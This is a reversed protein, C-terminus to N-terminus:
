DIPLEAAKIAKELDAVRQHLGFFDILDSLGARIEPVVALKVVERAASSFDAKDCFEDWDLSSMAVAIDPLWQEPMTAILYREGGGAARHYMEAVIAGVQSSLLLYPLPADSDPKGQQAPTSGITMTCAIGEQFATALSMGSAAASQYGLLGLQFAHFISVGEDEDMESILVDEDDDCIDPEPTAATRILPDLVEDIMAGVDEEAM